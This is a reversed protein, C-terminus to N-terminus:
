DRERSAGQGQRVPRDPHREQDDAWRRDAARDPLLRRQATGSAVHGVVGGIVGLPLALLISIPITWSEYLAALCLFIVFISFAYLLPAQSRAMREQYSLGTWDFGIGKPLKAVIEEM